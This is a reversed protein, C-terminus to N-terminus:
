RGKSLFHKKCMELIRKSKEDKIKLGKVEVVLFEDGFIHIHTDDSGIRTRVDDIWDKPLVLASSRRGTKIVKHKKTITVM